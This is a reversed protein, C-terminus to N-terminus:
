GGTIEALCTPMGNLVGRRMAAIKEFASGERNDDLGRDGVVLATRVAEDLDGPSVIITAPPQGPITTVPPGTGPDFQIRSGIWAGVM